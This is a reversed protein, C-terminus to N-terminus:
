GVLRQAQRRQEAILEQVDKDVLQGDRVQWQGAVMVHTAQQAGCLVLAALPDHAGAFRIDDLGFLALDAQKGVALSGIDSRGLCAASGATAYRWVDLHSVQASGYRLRQIFLAQRLESIMNSGDNSASGDVALGVPSGAQELERARCIGSALLMNSSPCHAVGVGAQGLRRIEDPNFHIGHALWTRPGLWGVDELYDVPRLGFRELCFTEEDLTEGLHTHLRVDFRRAMRASERMLEPTISFPSCPALAIQLMAGDRSDHYRQILRQSDDIIFQEPQVARDPPLGGDKESLSMSGRTLVARLGMDAAARAQIDIAHELGPPFLYHHDAATTCGSLLLEAMALRSAAALMAEDLNVWVRYLSLLWPFLEQNLAAPLARTLTQFFHHHTNILGPTLVLGSADVCTDYHTPATGAAVLETIRTGCVVVGNAACQDTGTYVALPNKIWCHLHSM